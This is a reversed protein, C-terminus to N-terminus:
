SDNNNPGCQLHQLLVFRFSIARQMRRPQYFHAQRSSPIQTITADATKDMRGRKGTLFGISSRIMVETDKLKRVLDYYRTAEEHAVIM